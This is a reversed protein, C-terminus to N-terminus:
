TFARILSAVGSSEAESQRYCAYRREAPILAALPWIEKVRGSSLSTSALYHPVISLGIGLEVAAVVAYLDPAVLASKAAFRAGLTQQWFRRTIPREESYSVWPQANLWAALEGLSIDAPPLPTAPSGILVYPEDGLARFQISNKTPKTTVFAVDMAGTKLGDLLTQDSGLTVAINIGLAALKPLAALRFYDPSSGFRLVRRAVPVFFSRGVRELCDIAEFVEQYLAAGRETARMGRVTRDFLSVGIARELSALQQSLASQSVQRERAAESVSGSRYIACFSSLWELSVM